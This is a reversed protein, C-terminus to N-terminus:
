RYSAAAPAAAHEWPRGPCPSPCRAASRCTGSCSCNDPPHPPWQSRPLAFRICRGSLRHFFSENIGRGPQEPRSVPPNQAGRRLCPFYRSGQLMGRRCASLPRVTCIGSGLLGDHFDLRFLSRPVPLPSSRPPNEFQFLATFRPSRGDM